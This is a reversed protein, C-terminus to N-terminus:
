LAQQAATPDCQGTREWARVGEGEFPVEANGSCELRGNVTVDSLSVAPGPNDVIRLLGDVTTEDVVTDGSNGSLTLVGTVRNAACTELLPTGFRVAFLNQQFRATGVIRTGCVSVASAAGGQEVFGAIKSNVISLTRIAPASVRLAVRSDDLVLGFAGSEATVGRKLTSGSIACFANAPVVVPADVVQNTISSTCQVPAPASAVASPAAVACSALATLCGVTFKAKM